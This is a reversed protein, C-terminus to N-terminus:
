SQEQREVIITRKNFQTEDRIIRIRMVDAPLMQPVRDGWEVICVDNPNFYEEWGIEYLEEPDDIRYVDFHHLTVNGEYTNVLTFTPSTITDRVGLGKAIGKVLATKGAGLDGELSVARGPGLLRALRVGLQYTEEESFTDHKEVMSGM